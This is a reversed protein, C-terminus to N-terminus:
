LIFVITLPISFIFFLPTKDGFTQFDNFFVFSEVVTLRNSFVVDHPLINIQETSEELFLFILIKHRKMQQEFLLQRVKLLIMLVFVSQQITRM